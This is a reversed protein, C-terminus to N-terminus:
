PTSFGPVPTTSPIDPHQPKFSAWATDLQNIWWNYIRRRHLEQQAKEIRNRAEPNLTKIEGQRFAKFSDDRIISLSDYIRFWEVRTAEPNKDGWLKQERERYEKEDKETQEQLQKQYARESETPMEVITKTWRDLFLNDRIHKYRSIFVGYALAVTLLLLVLKKWHKEIM